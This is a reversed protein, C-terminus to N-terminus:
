FTCESRNILQLVSHMTQILQSKSKVGLIVCAGSQFINVCMPNFHSIRLAQFIEPEYTVNYSNIQLFSSLKFLNIFTNVKFNVSASMCNRIKVRCYFPNTHQQQSYYENDDNDGEMTESQCKLNVIQNKSFQCFSKCKMLRCKFNRFVILKMSDPQEEEGEEIWCSLVLM